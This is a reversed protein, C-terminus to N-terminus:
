RFQRVQAACVRARVDDPINVVMIEIKMSRVLEAMWSKGRFWRAPTDDAFALIRRTERSFTQGALYLKAVDTVVKGKQAPRVKAQHAWAECLVGSRTNCGDIELVGGNPLSLRHKKLSCGVERSVARLIHEECERQEASDGPHMTNASGEVLPTQRRRASLQAIPKPMLRLKRSM